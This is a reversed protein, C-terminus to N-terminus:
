YLNCTVVSFYLQPFSGSNSGIQSNSKAPFFTPPPNATLFAWGKALFAFPHPVRGLDAKIRSRYKDPPEKCITNQGSLCAPM